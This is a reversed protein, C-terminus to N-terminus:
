YSWRATGTFQMLRHYKTMRLWGITLAGLQHNMQVGVYRGGHACIPTKMIKNMDLDSHFLRWPLGFAYVVSRVLLPHCLRLSYPWHFM